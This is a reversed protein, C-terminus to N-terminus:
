TRLLFCQMFRIVLYSEVLVLEEEDIYHAILTFKDSLECIYLQYYFYRSVWKKQPLSKITYSLKCQFQLEHRSSKISQYIYISQM